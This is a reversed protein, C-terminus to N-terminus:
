RTERRKERKQGKAENLHLPRVENGTTSSTNALLIAVGEREWWLGETWAPPM